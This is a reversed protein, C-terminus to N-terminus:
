NRWRSAYVFSNAGRSVFGSWQGRSWYAFQNSGAELATVSIGPYQVHRSFMADSSYTGSATTTITVHSVRGGEVKRIQRTSLPDTAVSADYDVSYARNEYKVLKSPDFGAAAEDAFAEITIGPGIAAIATACIAGLTMGLLLHRDPLNM